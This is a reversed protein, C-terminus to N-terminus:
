NSAPGQPQDAHASLAIRIFGHVTRYIPMETGQKSSYMAELFKPAPSTGLSAGYTRALEEYDDGNNGEAVAASNPGERRAVSSDAGDRPCDVRGPAKQGAGTPVAWPKSM